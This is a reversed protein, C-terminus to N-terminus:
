WKCVVAHCYSYMELVIYYYYSCTHLKSPVHIAWNNVNTLCFCFQSQSHKVTDVNVTENTCQPKQVTLASSAPQESDSEFWEIWNQPLVVTLELDPMPRDTHVSATQPPQIDQTRLTNSFSDSMMNSMAALKVLMVVLNHTNFISPLLHLIVRSICFQWPFAGVVRNTRYVDTVM